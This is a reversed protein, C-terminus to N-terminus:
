SLSGIHERQMLQIKFHDPYSKLPLMKDQKRIMHQVPFIFLLLFLLLHLM